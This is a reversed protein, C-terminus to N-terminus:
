TKSLTRKLNSQTEHQQLANKMSGRITVALDAIITEPKEKMGNQIWQIVLAIFALTYFNSIFAKKNDDIDMDKAVKDVVGIILRNTVLYLFQELHERGLSRFACLTVEKNDQLYLFLNLFGEQWDGYSAHKKLNNIAEKKYIWELLEYINEFHYYFTHRNLSCNDVIEQITIKSLPKTKMLTKLSNALVEKTMETMVSHSM